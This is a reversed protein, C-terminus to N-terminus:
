GRVGLYWLVGLAIGGGVILMANRLGILFARTVVQRKIPGGRLQEQMAYIDLPSRYVNPRHQRM